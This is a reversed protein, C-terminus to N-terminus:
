SALVEDLEEEVLSVDAADVLRPAAEGELQVLLRLGEALSVSLM